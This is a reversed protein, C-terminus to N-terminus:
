FITIRASATPFSRWLRHYGPVGLTVFKIMEAVTILGLGFPKNNLDLIKDFKTRSFRRLKLFFLLSRLSRHSFVKLNQRM